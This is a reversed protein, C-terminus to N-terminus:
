ELGYLCSIPILIYIFPFSPFFLWWTNELAGHDVGFYSMSVCVCVYAGGWIICKQIRKTNM